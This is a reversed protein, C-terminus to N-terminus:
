GPPLTTADVASDDKEYSHETQPEYPENVPSRPMAMVGTRSAELIGFPKCLKMFSSIRSPKACLEVVVSDSSVDVIKGRFLQALDTVARLYEFTELLTRSPAETKSKLREDEFETEEKLKTTPLQEHLFEPGLISLKILLLEREVIKTTTYDLVAWVPVLDELQRRAQEIQVHKGNFVVTMRSLDPVETNAVVLSEINFNRAALVGSVRSLVGPENQVLCNLVHRKEEENSPTPTNYLINSVAEEASPSPIKPVPGFRRQRLDDKFALGSISSPPSRTSM